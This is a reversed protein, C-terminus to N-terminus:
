LNQNQALQTLFQSPKLIKTDEFEKLILLDEDGTIIFDAKVEYALDLIMNDDPDRCINFKKSPEVVNSLQTLNLIFNFIEEKTVIGKTVKSFKIGYLKRELEELTQPSFYISINEDHLCTNVLELMQNGFGLASFYINTDLIVKIM